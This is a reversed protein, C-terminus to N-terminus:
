HGHNYIYNMSFQTECDPSKVVADLHDGTIKGTLHTNGSVADISGDYAVPAAFLTVPNYGYWLVGDGIMIVREGRDLPCAPSKAVVTSIRGQYSGNYVRSEGATLPVAVGVSDFM